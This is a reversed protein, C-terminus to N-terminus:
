LVTTSTEPRTTLPTGDVWKWTGEHDSDTLGIWARQYKSFILQEKLSNIIFLDAGKHRCDEQSNIWTKQQDSVYYCKFNFSIWGSPCRPRQAVSALQDRETKVISYNTQLQNHNMKLSSYNTQLQNHNMKLSSYNTQLQNHNMKLSSYNTQLQDRKAALMNSKEELDNFAGKYYVFLVTILMLLVLCLMGLCVAPLRYWRAGAPESGSHQSRRSTQEMPNSTGKPAENAKIIDANAYVDEDMKNAYINEDVNTSICTDDSMKMKLRRYQDGTDREAPSHKRHATVLEM